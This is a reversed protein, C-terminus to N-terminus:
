RKEDLTRRFRRLDEPGPQPAPVMIQVDSQIANPPPLGDKSLLSPAPPAPTTAATSQDTASSTSPGQPTGGTSREPTESSSQATVAATLFLGM